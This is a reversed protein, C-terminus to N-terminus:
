SFEMTNIRKIEFSMSTKCFFWFSLSFSYFCTSMCISKKKNLGMTKNKHLEFHAFEYIVQGNLMKRKRETSETVNSNIGM